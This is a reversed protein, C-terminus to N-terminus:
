IEELLLHKIKELERQYDKREEVFKVYWEPNIEIFNEWSCLKEKEKGIYEQYSSFEWDEPKEVLYATVPNLHIYRTLHLLQEDNEVLVNSFRGAWVPGKRRNKKNFYLAYSKLVKEMYKSIGPEQSQYLILHLHTPMLCYSIIEVYQPSDENIIKEQFQPTLELFHSYSIFKEKKYYHLIKRMRIFDQPNNFVKLEGISRTYVHFVGGSFLQIKRVGM